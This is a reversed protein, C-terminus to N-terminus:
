LKIQKGNILGILGNFGISANVGNTDRMLLNDVLVNELLVYESFMHSARATLSESNESIVLRNRM